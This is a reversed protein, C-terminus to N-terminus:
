TSLKEGAYMALFLSEPSASVDFIVVTNLDREINATTAGQTLENATIVDLYVHPASWSDDYKKYSINLLLRVKPTSVVQPTAAAPPKVPFSGDEDPTIKGTPLTVDVTETVHILDVWTVFLRNNFY